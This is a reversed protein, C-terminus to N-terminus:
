MIHDPKSSDLESIPASEAEILKSATDLVEQVRKEFNEIEVALRANSDAMFMIKKNIVNQENRLYDLIQYIEDQDKKEKTM